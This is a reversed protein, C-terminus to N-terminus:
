EKPIAVGDVLTVAKLATHAYEFALVNGSCRSRGPLIRETFPHDTRHGSLARVMHNREAFTMQVPDQPAVLIVVIGRSGVEAKVFISRIGPRDLRRFHSNDGCLRYEASQVMAAMSSRGLLYVCAVRVLAAQSENRLQIARRRSFHPVAWECSLRSPANGGVRAANQKELVGVLQLRPLSLHAHWVPGLVGNEHIGGAM